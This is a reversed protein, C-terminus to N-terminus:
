WRSELSVAQGSSKIQQSECPLFVWRGISREKLKRIILTVTWAPKARKGDNM